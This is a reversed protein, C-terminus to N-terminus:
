VVKELILRVEGEDEGAPSPRMEHSAIRWSRGNFAIAAGDLSAVAVDAEDLEYVRLDAAPLITAVGPGSLVEIGFTKDVATLEIETAATDALTLVADVGLAGYIADYHARWDM